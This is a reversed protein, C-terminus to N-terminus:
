TTYRENNTRGSTGQTFLVALPLTRLTTYRGNDTCGSTGHTFLQWIYLGVYHMRLILKTVTKSM